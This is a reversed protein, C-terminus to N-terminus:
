KNIIQWAVVFLGFFKKVMDSLFPWASDWATRWFSKVAVQLEPSDAIDAAQDIAARTEPTDIPKNVAEILVTAADDKTTAALTLSASALLLMSAVIISIM